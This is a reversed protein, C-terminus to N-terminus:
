YMEIPNLECHFKPLFYCHHGAEELITQLLSKEACFDAQSQLAKPMCCTSSMLVQLIDEALEDPEEENSLAAESFVIKQVQGQLHPHPSDMLIVTDHIKQQKGEPGVNMEKSNLADK